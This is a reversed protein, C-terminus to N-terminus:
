GYNSYGYNEYIDMTLIIIYIYIYILLYITGDNYGNYGNDMIDVIDM